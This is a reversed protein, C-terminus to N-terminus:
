SNTGRILRMYTATAEEQSIDKRFVPIPEPFIKQENEVIYGIAKPDGRVAKNLFNRVMAEYMTIRRTRGGEEIEIHQNLQEGLITNFNKAGKRRGSPNGSQGKKWRSKAPPKGKGIDYDRTSNAM